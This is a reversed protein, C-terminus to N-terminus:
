GPGATAPKEPSQGASGPAPLCCRVQDAFTAVNIPKSLYADFGSAIMQAQDDKMAFATFAVIVRQRTAPDARLRQTLVVGDVDPRQIDMLILDPRRAQIQAQTSPGDTATSVEFGGRDLVFRVLDLNVENDDVVLM